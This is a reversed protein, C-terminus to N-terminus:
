SLISRLFLKKCSDKKEDVGFVINGSAEAKYTSFLKDWWSFVSGYNTDTEHQITSHHIRHMLPSSFILRYKLDFNKSIRINSHHIVVVSFFLIEYVLVPIFSFGMLLYFVCRFIASFFLEITHFRVATTSNMKEERHHFKHFHWFIKKTHNFRHWWYIYYDIILITLCINARLPITFQQLIGIKQESIFDLLNILLASPIILLLGNIIGVIINKIEHRADNYQRREPFVHEFLYQLVFVSFVIISQWQKELLHAPSLLKDM